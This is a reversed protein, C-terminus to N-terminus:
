GRAGRAQRLDPSVIVDGIQAALAEAMAKRDKPFQCIFVDQGTGGDSMFGAHMVELGGKKFVESLGNTIDAYTGKLHNPNIGNVGDPSNLMPIPISVAVSDGHRSVQPVYAKGIVYDRLGRHHRAVDDIVDKAKFTKSM